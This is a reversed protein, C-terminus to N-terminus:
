QKKERLNNGIEEFVNNSWDPALTKLWSMFQEDLDNIFLLIKANTVLDTNKEVLELNYQFSTIVAISTLDLIGVGSVFLQIDGFALAGILQLGSM